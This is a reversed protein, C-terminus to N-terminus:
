YTSIMQSAQSVFATIIDSNTWMIRMQFALTLLTSPVHFTQWQFQLRVFHFANYYLWICLIRQLLHCSWVLVSSNDSLASMFGSLLTTFATFISALKGNYVIAPDCPHSCCLGHDPCWLASSSSSSWLVGPPTCHLFFPVFYAPIKSSPIFLLLLCLPISASQLPSIHCLLPLCCEYLVTCSISYM